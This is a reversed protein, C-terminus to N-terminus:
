HPGLRPHGDITHGANTTITVAALGQAKHVVWWRLEAAIPDSLAPGARVIRLYRGTYTSAPSSVEGPTRRRGPRYTERYTTPASREM